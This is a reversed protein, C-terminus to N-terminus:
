FGGTLMEMIVEKVRCIIIQNDLTYDRYRKLRKVNSKKLLLLLVSDDQRVDTMSKFNKNLEGKHRSKVTHLLNHDLYLMELLGINQLKM